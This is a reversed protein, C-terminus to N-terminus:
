LRLIHLAPSPPHSKTPPMVVQQIHDTTVATPSAYGGIMSQNMQMLHQQQQQQM